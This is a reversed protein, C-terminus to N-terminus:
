FTNGCGHILIHHIYDDYKTSPYLPQFAVIHEPNVANMDIVQCIYQTEVPKISWPPSFGTTLASTADKPPVFRATVPPDILNIFIHGRNGGHYGFFKGWAFIIPQTTNVISRDQYDKTNLLRNVVATIGTSSYSVCKLTWDQEIDLQPYLSSPYLPLQQASNSAAWPVWRDQITASGNSADYLITM